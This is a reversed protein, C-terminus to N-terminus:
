IVLKATIPCHDSGATNKLIAVERLNDAISRSVFIYDIRWGINRERLDLRYPWWTFHGGDKYIERFTDLFGFGLLKDIQAREERTFMINDHNDKPRALDIEDHAINFDGVMIINNEQIDKLYRLLCDYVELKYALNEKDRGGHPIYINILTFDDYDLRLFRGESDFRKHGIDQWMKIPKRKTYIAVGSYGKKDADNFYCHTSAEAFLGENMYEKQAKIEQLCVFDAGFEKLFDEHGKRRVSRLGNVNWSVVKM